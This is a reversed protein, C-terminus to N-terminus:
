PGYIEVIRGRPLGGIGLAMDLAMAGTSIVEISMAPNEGMKMVSGKGFRKEIQSLAADLAKEREMAEEKRIAEGTVEGPPPQLELVPTTSCRRDTGEKM